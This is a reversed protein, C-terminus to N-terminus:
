PLPARYSADADEPLIVALVNTIPILLRDGAQAVGATAGRSDDGGQGVAPLTVDLWTTGITVPGDLRDRGAIPQLLLVTGETLRM